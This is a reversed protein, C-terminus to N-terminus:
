SIRSADELQQLHSLTDPHQSGLLTPAIYLVEQIVNGDSDHLSKSLVSRPWVCILMNYALSLVTLWVTLSLLAGAIGDIIGSDSRRFLLAFIRTIYGFLLYAATFILCCALTSYIFDTETIGLRQPWTDRLFADVPPAFIRACLIGFLLGFLRPLQRRFGRRFGSIVSLAIVTIATLSLLWASM